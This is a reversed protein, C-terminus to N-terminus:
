KKLREINNKAVSAEVGNPLVDLYRQYYEVAKESKGQLRFAEALGMIAPGYRSNLKLAEEFAAQAALHNGLDLLALGRGAVPEARGPKLDAAQGYMDLAAEAKERDRLRDGQSMFYEYTKKPEPKGADPIGADAEPAGADVEPQGADVAVTVAGADVEVAADVAGADEVVPLPTPPTVVVPTPEPPPKNREAELAKQEPVYIGFYWGAGGGLALGLFVLFVWKGRGGKVARELEDDSPGDRFMAPAMPLRQPAGSLPPAAQPPPPPPLPAPAPQSPPPPPPPVSFQPERMTERIDPPAGGPEPRSPVPFPPPASFNPERWTDTLKPQGPPSSPSPPPVTGLAGLARAKKAEEFVQFFSALEPINGLRKWTDGSLSIEDDRGIKGEIIWKQLTTLERCSFVNGGPQRIKWERSPPAPPLEGAAQAQRVAAEGERVPLTVVLSKKKVRFVHGCTTCKVTVGDEPVRTDDLEYETQCKPCGVDM